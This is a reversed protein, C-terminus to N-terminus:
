WLVEVWLKILAPGDKVDYSDYQNYNAWIMHNM